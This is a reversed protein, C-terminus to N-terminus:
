NRLEKLLEVSKAHGDAAAKQLWQIALNKNRQVGGEGNLLM